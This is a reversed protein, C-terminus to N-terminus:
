LELSNQNLLFDYIGIILIGNENHWPEINDKVIIIKKFFDHIHLLSRQEQEMKERDPISFASQIYYRQNGRNCVFDVETQLLAQKGDGNMTRIPVLGVDVNFGRLLLENFIINEMIHTEEQQRFNLRSNRLGVDTFYYKYPSEIYKKGKIDYRQTKRILFADELYELYMRITTDSIKIGKSQFTNALKRPNTLSGVSSALIDVVHDIAVDDRLRNREIVDRLYVNQLIDSLYQSKQMSSKCALIYPLGGYNFYDRWADSKDGGKARYFEAFSLPYVHIVDGRGRFETRIDSSLFKSNSGTIYVDVNPNRILGNLVGYLKIPEDRLMEEKSIAFQVEDLLIYYQEQPNSTKEALYADLADPDCLARNKSSDLDIRIINEPKVGSDLLYRYFINFLLYSKGARRIGTIIKVMGNGKRAILEQLYGDREIEKM